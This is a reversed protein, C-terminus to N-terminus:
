KLSELKVWQGKEYKEFVSGSEDFASMIVSSGIRAWRTLTKSKLKEVRLEEMKTAEEDLRM